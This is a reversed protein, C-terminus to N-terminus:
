EKHMNFLNDNHIHMDLTIAAAAANYFYFLKLYFFYHKILVHFIIWNFLVCVCM